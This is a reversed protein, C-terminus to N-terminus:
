SEGWPDFPTGSGGLGGRCGTARDIRSKDLIEDCRIADQGLLSHEILRPVHADPM